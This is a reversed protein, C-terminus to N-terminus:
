LVSVRQLVTQKTGNYESHDKITGLITIKDGKQIIRGSKEDREVFMWFKGTKLNVTNADKGQFDFARIQERTEQPVNYGNHLTHYRGKEVGIELTGNWFKRDDSRVELGSIEDKVVNPHTLSASGKYILVNGNEDLFTYIQMFGYVGEFSRYSDLTVNIKVRKGVEGVYESAADREMRAKIAAIVRVPLVKDNFIALLGRKIGEEKAIERLPSNWLLYKYEDKKKDDPVRGGESVWLVYGDPLNCLHQDKYKGFRMVDDGRVIDHLDEPADIFLQINKSMTLAKMVSEAYDIGLNQVFFEPQHMNKPNVIWLTYMKGERGYRMEAFRMSTEIKAVNNHDIMAEEAQRNKLDIDQTTM